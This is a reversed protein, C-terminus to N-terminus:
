NKQWIKATEDRGISWINGQHDTFFQSVNRNHILGGNIVEGDRIFLL